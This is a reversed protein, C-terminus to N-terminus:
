SWGADRRRRAPLRAPEFPQLMSQMWGVFMILPLYMLPM